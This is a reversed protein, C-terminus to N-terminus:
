GLTASVQEMISFLPERDKEFEYEYKKVLCFLTTCGTLVGADNGSLLANSIDTLVSPWRDPYDWSCMRILCRIYQKSILRSDCQFMKNVINLRVYNKDEEKIIIFRFGPVTIRKAQEEDRFKWHRDVFQGLQM